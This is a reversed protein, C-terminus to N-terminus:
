RKIQALRQKAKAFCPDSEPLLDLVRQYQTAADQNHGLAFNADGTQCAQHGLRIKQDNLRALDATVDISPDLEHAHQFRQQAANLDGQQEAQRGTAYVRAADDKIGAHADARRQALDLYGAPAVAAIADLEKLAQQYKQGQLLAVADEYRKKMAAVRRSYERQTEGPQVELGGQAAAIKVAAPPAEPAAAAPKLCADAKAALDKARADDPNETLLANVADLAAQCENAAISAEVDDLKQALTKEVPAAPPPTEVPAPAPAPPPECREKLALADADNPNVALAPGIQEQLAVACKGDNVLALAVDRDWVRKARKHLWTYTAFGSVAVVALVAAAIGILAGASRSGSAGAARMTGTGGAAPTAAPTPVRAPTPSAAAPMPPPGELLEGAGDVAAPEAHEEPRSYETPETVVEGAAAPPQAAAAAEVTTIRFPGLAATVGPALQVSPVRAGDVWIGNQSELDVLMYHGGEARIEAHQRSVGKGPDELVIDNQPSRGIRVTQGQLEYEGHLANGRYILLKM